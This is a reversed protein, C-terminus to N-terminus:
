FTYNAGLLFMNMPQITSDKPDAFNGQNDIPKFSREYDLTIALYRNASWALGVDYLPVIGSASYSQHFNQRFYNWSPGLGNTTHYDIVLHGFSYAFGLKTYVNIHSDKFSNKIVTTFELNYINFAYNQIVIGTDLYDARRHQTEVGTDAFSAEFAINKLYNYGVSIRDMTDAGLTPLLDQEDYQTIIHGYDKSYIVGYQFAIYYGKRTFGQQEAQRSSASDAFSHAALLLLLITILYNRFM